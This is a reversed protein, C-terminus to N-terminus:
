ISDFQKAYTERTWKNLLHERTNASSCHKITSALSSFNVFKGYINRKQNKTRQLVSFTYVNAIMHSNTRKRQIIIKNKKRITTSDISAVATTTSYCKMMAGYRQLKLSHQCRLSDKLSDKSDTSHKYQIGFNKQPGSSLWKLMSQFEFPVCRTWFFSFFFSEFKDAYLKYCLPLYVWERWSIFTHTHTNTTDDTSQNTRSNLHNGNVSYKM